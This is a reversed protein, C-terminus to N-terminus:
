SIAVADAFDLPRPIMNNTTQATQKNDNTNNSQINHEKNIITIKALDGAEQQFWHAM